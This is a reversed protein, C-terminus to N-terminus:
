FSYHIRKVGGVNASIARRAYTVGWGARLLHAVQDAAVQALRPQLHKVRQAGLHGLQKTLPPQAPVGPIACVVAGGFQVKRAKGNSAWMLPVCTPSM